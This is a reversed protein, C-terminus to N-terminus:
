AFIAREIFSPDERASNEIGQAVVLDEDSLQRVYGKVKIGLERAVRVRRHGYASQYRTPDSPHERVLIPIEQGHERISAKLAEYSGADQEEFRDAYPSPDVLHPEIEIAVSGTALQERLDQYGREVHSFTDKLSKVAGSTVRPAIPKNDASLPEDPASFMSRISQTRKSM